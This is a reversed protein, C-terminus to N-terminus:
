QRRRLRAAYFGDMGGQDALHCPLTRLDGDATILEELGFVERRKSRSARSIRIAACSIRSRNRAKRRNWRASPSSSCATRRCGHRGRCRSTRRGCRRVCRYTPPANSGPCIPIAASRARRAHVACRAARVARTREAHLRARGGRGDRGRNAPARSKGEAHGRAAAEREVAIVDAGAAALQATKGGPAACLDIVAQGTVDGFLRAPLRRRSIRCGGAAKPSTRCNRSAAQMACACSMARFHLRMPCRACRRSIARDRFISRRRRWIRWRSRARLRRRWLRRELAAVALRAHQPAGCGARRARRQRRALHAALTANILPKFHVAKNDAARWVTPARRRGRAAGCRPVAIRLGGRAPDRADPGARHPAPPKPVFQRILAELQGFRRLTESAIARAFGADRPPLDARALVTTWCRM